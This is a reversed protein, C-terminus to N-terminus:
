VFIINVACFINKKLKRCTKARVSVIIIIIILSITANLDNSIPITKYPQKSSIM